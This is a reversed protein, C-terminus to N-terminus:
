QLQEVTISVNYSDSPQAAQPRVEYTIPQGGVALTKFELLTAQDPACVYPGTGQEGIDATYTLEIVWRGDGTKGGPTSLYATVRFLGNAPPTYVVASTTQTQGTLAVTAVVCPYTACSAAPARRADKAFTPLSLALLVILLYRYM